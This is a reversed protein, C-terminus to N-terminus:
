EERKNSCIILDEQLEKEEEEWSIGRTGEHREKRLECKLIRAKSRRKRKGRREEEEEEEEERIFDGQVM